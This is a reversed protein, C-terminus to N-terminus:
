VSHLKVKNLDCPGAIQRCIAYFFAAQPQREKITM